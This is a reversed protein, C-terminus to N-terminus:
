IKFLIFGNFKLFCNYYIIVFFLIRKFVVFFILFFNFEEVLDLCFVVLVLIWGFCNVFVLVDFVFKFCSGDVLVLGFCNVFVLFVFM